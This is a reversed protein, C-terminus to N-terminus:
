HFSFYCSEETVAFCHSAVRVVAPQLTFCKPVGYVHIYIAEPIIRSMLVTKELPFWQVPVLRIGRWLYFHTYPSTQVIPTTNGCGIITGSGTSQMYDKRGGGGGACGYMGSSKPIMVILSKYISEEGYFHHVPLPPKHTDGPFGLVSPLHQQQKKENEISPEEVKVTPNNNKADEFASRDYGLSPFPVYWPSCPSSSSSKTSSSADLIRTPQYLQQLHRILNRRVIAAGGFVTSTESDFSPKVASNAISLGLYLALCWLHYSSKFKALTLEVDKISYGHRNWLNVSLFLPLRM